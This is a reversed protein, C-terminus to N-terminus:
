RGRYAPHTRVFCRIVDPHTPWLHAFGLVRGDDDVACRTDRAMDTDPTNLRDSVQATTTPRGVWHQSAADLADTLARLDSWEAPRLDFVDTPMNQSRLSESAM